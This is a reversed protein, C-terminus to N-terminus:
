FCILKTISVSRGLLGCFAILFCHALGVFLDFSFLSSSTESDSSSSSSGHGHTGYSSVFSINATPDISNRDRKFRSPARGGNDNAMASRAIRSDTMHISFNSIPLLTTLFLTRFAPPQKVFKKDVAYFHPAYLLTFEGPRFVSWKLWARLFQLMPPSYVSGKDPTTPIMWVMWIMWLIM